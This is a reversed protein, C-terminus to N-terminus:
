NNGKFRNEWRDISYLSGIEHNFKMLPFTKTKGWQKMLKDLNTYPSVYLIPFLHNLVEICYELYTVTQIELSIPVYLTSSSGQAVYKHSIYLLISLSLFFSFSLLWSSCPWSSRSVSYPFNEAVNIASVWSTKAFPSKQQEYWHTHFLKQRLFDQRQYVKLLYRPESYHWPSLNTSKPSVPSPYPQPLASKPAHFVSDSKGSDLPPVYNQNIVM